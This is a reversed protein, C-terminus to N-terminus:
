DWAHSLVVDLEAKLQKLNDYVVAQM